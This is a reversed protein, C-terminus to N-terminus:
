TGEDAGTFIPTGANQAPAGMEEIYIFHRGALKRILDLTV